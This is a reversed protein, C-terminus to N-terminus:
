SETDKSDPSSDAPPPTKPAPPAETATGGTATVSVGTKETTVNQAANFAHVELRHDGLTLPDTTFAFDTMPSDVTSFPLSHWDGDDIRYEVSVIPTLKDTVVGSLTVRHDAGVTMTKTALLVTPPTNDVTVALTDSQSLPSWPQSRRDSATVRLLYAGDTTKATDWEYKTESLDSKLTTWTKGLDSSLSVNYVLTNQDPDRGDWKITFKKAVCAEGSPAKISVTPPRNVPQRSLHVERVVPSPKGDTRSLTLRYQLYRARPSRILNDAATAIWESWRDDPNVSDGSRTEVKM